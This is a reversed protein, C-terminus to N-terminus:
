EQKEVMPTSKLCVMIHFFDETWFNNFVEFVQNLIDEIRLKEIKFSNLFNSRVNKKM